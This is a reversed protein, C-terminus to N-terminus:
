MSSQSYLGLITIVAKLNLSEYEEIIAVDKGLVIDFYNDFYDM